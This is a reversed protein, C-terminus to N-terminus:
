INFKQVEKLLQDANQTLEESLESIKIISVTQEQTSAAVEETSAASEEAIAAVNSIVDSISTANTHLEETASTVDHIQAVIGEISEKIIAFSAKTENVADEQKQAVEVAAQVEHVSELSASQIENLLEIINDSSVASQEALKRVEEAVVAFGKGHEGARAAEIAANLSLLNTQAAINHIVGVIEEIKQSKEALLKISEGVSVTSDRSVKALDVQNVVVEVGERMAENAEGIMQVTKEVNESIRDVSKTMGAVMEAGSYVSSAQEAAGNALEEVATSIQEAISGTKGAHDHVDKSTSDVAVASDSVKKLLGRLNEAMANFSAGLDAIEDKGKIPVTVTLDGESMKQSTERLRILPKSFSTAIIFALAIVVALAVVSMLMYDNRLDYFEKYAAKKPVSAAVIWGTSPIKKYMVLQEDKKYTFTTHGTGTGLMKSALAKWEANESLKTNFLKEDPHSLVNSESDIIFAFGGGDLKVRKINDTITGLKVEGAIVGHFSGFNENDFLPASISITYSNNVSELYPDSFALKGTEKVEQYWPRTRPDYDDEPEWGSGDVFTGDEFGVFLASMNEANSEKEFAKLHEAKVDEKVVADQIVNGVSEVVKTNSEIWGDLETAIGDVTGTLKADIKQTAQEEVSRLGLITIPVIALIAVISFLLVLKGKLKM